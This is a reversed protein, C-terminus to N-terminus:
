SRLRPPQSRRPSGLPVLIPPAEDTRPFLWWARWQRAALYAAFPKSIKPCAQLPAKPIAAFESEALAKIDEVKTSIPSSLLVLQTADDYVLWFVSRM